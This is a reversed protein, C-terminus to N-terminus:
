CHHIAWCAERPPYVLTHIAWTAERPPYVLTHIAWYLRGPHTYPPIVRM